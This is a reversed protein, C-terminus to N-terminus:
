KEEMLTRLEIMQFNDVLAKLGAAVEPVQRQKMSEFFKAFPQDTVEYKFKIGTRGEILKLYEIVGGQPPENDNVILYPPWDVIPKLIASSLKELPSRTPRAGKKYGIRMGELDSFRKIRYENQSTDFVSFYTPVLTDTANYLADRSPDKAGLALGDIEGHQAKEQIKVWPDEVSLYIGTNLLRNIQECLDVLMGVHTGNVRKM